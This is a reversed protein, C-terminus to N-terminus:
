GAGQRPAVCASGGGGPALLRGGLGALGSPEVETRSRWRVEGTGADRCVIEGKSHSFISSVDGVVGLYREGQPLTLSAVSGLPLTLAEARAPPKSTADKEKEKGPDLRALRRRAVWAARQPLGTVDEVVGDERLLLRWARIA